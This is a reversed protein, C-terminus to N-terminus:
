EWEIPTEWLYLPHELGKKDKVSIRKVPKAGEIRYQHSVIRTGPRLQDLQPRLRANVDSKLYMTIVTAPTFDQKFLDGRIVRIKDTMGAEVIAQRSLDVLAPDIEIGVAKAKYDRAAALLIRGDGSGLDYVTDNESVKALALMASVIEPPTTVFPVDPTRFDVLYNFAPWWAAMAALVILLPWYRRFLVRVKM